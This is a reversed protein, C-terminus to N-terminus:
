APVGDVHKGLERRRPHFNLRRAVAQRGLFRLREDRHREFLGEVTDIAEVDHARLADRNTRGNLHEELRTSVFQAGRWNTCSRICVTIGDSGVQAAGARSSAARKRSPRKMFIPMEESVIDSVSIDIIAYQVIRAADHLNRADGFTAIQPSRILSGLDLDVRLPHGGVVDRDIFHHFDGALASSTPKNCNECPATIPVPPKTSVGFWRRCMRGTEATTEAASSPWTGIESRLFASPM